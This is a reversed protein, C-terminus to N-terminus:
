LNWDSVSHLHSLRDFLSLKLTHLTHPELEITQDRANRMGYSIYSGREIKSSIVLVQAKTYTM